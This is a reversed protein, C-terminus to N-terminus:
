PIGILLGYILKPPLRITRQFVPQCQHISLAARRMVAPNKSPNHKLMVIAAQEPLFGPLLPTVPLLDSTSSV